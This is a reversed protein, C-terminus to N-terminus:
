KIMVGKGFIVVKNKIVLIKGEVIARKGIAQPITFGAHSLEVRIEAGNEVLTFFCGSPCENVIIGELKVIQGNFREPNALIESIKTFKELIIDEGYKRMGCGIFIVVM